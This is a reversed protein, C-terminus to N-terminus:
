ITDKRNKIFLIWLSATLGLVFVLLIPTRILVITSAILEPTLALQDLLMAISFDSTGIGGPVFSIIGIGASLFGITVTKYYPIVLLANIFFFIMFSDIIWALITYFLLKPMKKKLLSINSSLAAIFSSLRNVSIRPLVVKALKDRKAESLILVALPLGILLLVIIAIGVQYNVHQTQLSFTTILLFLSLIMMFIMVLLELFRDVIIVSFGKSYNVKTFKRFFLPAIIEGSKMPTFYTIMCNIFYILLVASYRVQESLSESLAVHWKYARVTMSLLSAILGLVIFSSKARQLSSLIPGIGAQSILYYMIVMGSILLIFGLTTRATKM